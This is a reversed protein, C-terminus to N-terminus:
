RGLPTTVETGPPPTFQFTSQPITGRSQNSYTTEIRDGNPQLMETRTVLLEGNMQLDFKQFIRKLSPTKPLLEV